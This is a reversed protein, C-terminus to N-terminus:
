PRGEGYQEHTRWPSLARQRGKTLEASRVESLEAATLELMDNVQFTRSRCANTLSRVAPLGM